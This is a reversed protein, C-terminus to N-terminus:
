LLSQYFPRRATLFLRLTLVDSAERREFLGQAEKVVFLLFMTLLTIVAFFVFVGAYGLIHFLFGGLVGGLSM